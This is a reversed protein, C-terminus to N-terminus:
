QFIDAPLIKSHLSNTTFSPPLNYPGASPLEATTMLVIFLGVM